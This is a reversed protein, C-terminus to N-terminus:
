NYRAVELLQPERPHRGITLRQGTFSFLSAQPIQAVQLSQKFPFQSMAMLLLQALTEFGSSEGVLFSQLVKVKRQNRADGLDPKQLQRLSGKQSAVVIHQKNAGAPDSLRM